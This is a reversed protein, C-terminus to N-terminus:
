LPTGLPQGSEDQREEASNDAKQWFFPGIEERARGQPMHQKSQESSM